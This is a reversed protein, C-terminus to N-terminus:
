HPILFFPLAMLGNLLDQGTLGIATLVALLPPLRNRRKALLSGLSWLFGVPLLIMAFTWILPSWNTLVSRAIMKDARILAICIVTLCSSVWGNIGIPKRMEVQFYRLM